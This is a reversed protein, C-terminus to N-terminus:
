KTENSKPKEPIAATFGGEKTNVYIEVRRNKARNEPSDNPKVPRYEGYGTAAFRAPDLKGRFALYKVVSLARAASLEWNSPFRENHIPVNDTHGEVIVETGKTERIMDAVIDLAPVVQSKLKDSGTDFLLPDAIIIHAGKETLTVKVEDQLNEDALKAKMNLVQEILEDKTTEQTRKFFQIQQHAGTSGKMVGLAAKLSGMAKDFKSEQISSFSVILVFFTLLLSMMDGYTVMWGPAGEEVEEERKKNKPM